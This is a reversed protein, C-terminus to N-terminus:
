PLSGGTLDLAWSLYFRVREVLLGLSTTLLGAFLAAFAITLVLRDRQLRGRQALAQDIM